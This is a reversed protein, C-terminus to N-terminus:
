SRSKKPKKVKVVTSAKSGSLEGNGQYAVSVKRKGPKLAPLRVPVFGDEVRAWVSGQGSVSVQAWGTVEDVPGKVRVLALGGSVKVSTTSKNKAVTASTKTVPGPALDAGGALAATLLKLIGPYSITASIKAGVDRRGLTYQTGKATAIVTGGRKWVVKPAIFDGVLDGLVEGFTAASTVVLTEGVRAAGALKPTATVVTYTAAPGEDTVTIAKTFTPVVPGGLGGIADLGCPTVGVCTFLPWGGFVMLAYDGVPVDTATYSSQLTGGVDPVMSIPADGNVPVLQVMGKVPTGLDDSIDITATGLGDPDAHAPGTVVLPAAILTAAAALGILRSLPTRM